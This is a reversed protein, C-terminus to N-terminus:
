PETRIQVILSRGDASLRWREVSSSPFGEGEGMCVSRVRHGVRLATIKSVRCGFDAFLIARAKITMGGYESPEWTRCRRYLTRSENIACWEGRYQVPIAPTAAAAVVSAMLIVLGLPITAYKM